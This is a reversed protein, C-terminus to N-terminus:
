AGQAAGVGLVWARLTLGSSVGCEVLPALSSLWGCLQTRLHQMVVPSGLPGSGGAPTPGSASDPDQRAGPRESARLTVRGTAVM